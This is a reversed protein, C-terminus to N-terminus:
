GATDNRSRGVTGEREYKELLGIFKLAFVQLDTANVQACWTMGEDGRRKDSFTIVVEQLADSSDSSFTIRRHAAANRMRRVLEGLTASEGLTVDIRPWGESSLQALPMKKISADFGKEHPFILLGLMSNVTQTVPHVDQNNRRAENIFKLNKRTRDAFTLAHNRSGYQEPAIRGDQGDIKSM